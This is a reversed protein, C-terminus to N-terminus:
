VKLICLPLSNSSPVFDDPLIVSDAPLVISVAASVARFLDQKMGSSRSLCADGHSTSRVRSIFDKERAPDKLAPKWGCLLSLPHAHTKARVQFEKWPRPLGLFSPAESLTKDRLGPTGFCLVARRHTEERWTHSAIPLPLRLTLWGAPLVPSM